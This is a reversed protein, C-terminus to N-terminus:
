KKKEKRNTKKKEKRNTAKYVCWLILAVLVIDLGIFEGKVIRVIEYISLLVFVIGFIPNSLASFFRSIIREIKSMKHATKEKDIHKITKNHLSQIKEFDLDNEFMLKAKQYCQEFKAVWADFVDKNPQEDINSAALIMFEFIDERTNPIPFNRIINVKQNDTAASELRDYFEKVAIVSSVGRLEYGCAPCVLVFSKVAEGCNPCKHIEGDYVIKRQSQASAQVSTGCEACFKAGDPLQQGCNICFAM